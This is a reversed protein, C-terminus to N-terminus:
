VHSRCYHVNGRNRRPPSSRRTKSQCISSAMWELTLGTWSFPSCWELMKQRAKLLPLVFTNEPPLSPLAGQNLMFMYQSHRPTSAMLSIRGCMVDPLHEWDAIPINKPVPFVKALVVNEIKDHSKGFWRSFGPDLRGRNTSFIHFVNDKNNGRLQVLFLVQCESKLGSAQFYKRSSESELASKSPEHLVIAM